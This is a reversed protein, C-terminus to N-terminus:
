SFTIGDASLLFECNTLATVPAHASGFEGRCYDGPNMSIGEVLLTGSLMYLEEVGEHRHGPFTVGAELRFIAMSRDDYRSSSFPRWQLGPSGTEQWPIKDARLIQLGDHDLLVGPKQQTVGKIKEMLGHKVSAPVEVELDVDSLLAQAVLGANNQLVDQCQLCNTAHEWAVKAEDSDLSRLIMEPSSAQFRDCDEQKADRM